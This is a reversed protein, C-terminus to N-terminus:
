LHQIPFLNFCNGEVLNERTDSFLLKPPETNSLTVHQSSPIHDLLVRMERLTGSIWNQCIWLTSVDWKLQKGADLIIRIPGTPVGAVLEFCSTMNTLSQGLCPPPVAHKSSGPPTKVGLSREDAAWGAKGLYRYLPVLKHTTANFTCARECLRDAHHRCTSPHFQIYQLHPPPPPTRQLYLRKM